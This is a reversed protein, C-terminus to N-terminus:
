TRRTGTSTFAICPVARGSVTVALLRQIVLNLNRLVIIDVFGRTQLVPNGALLVPLLQQLLIPVKLVAHM